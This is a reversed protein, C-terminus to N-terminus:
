KQLLLLLFIKISFYTKKGKEEGFYRQGTHGHRGQIIRPVPNWGGVGGEDVQLPVRHHPRHQGLPHTHVPHHHEHQWPLQRFVSIFSFFYLQCNRSYSWFKEGLKKLQKITSYNSLHFSGSPGLQCKILTYRTTNCWITCSSVQYVPWTPM